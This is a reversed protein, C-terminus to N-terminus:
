ATFTFAPRAGTVKSLVKALLFGDIPLGTLPSTGNYAGNGNVDYGILDTKVNSVKEVLGFHGTADQAAALASIQRASIASASGNLGATIGTGGHGVFLGQADGNEDFVGLPRIGDNPKGFFGSNRVASISGGKGGRGQAASGGNGAQLLNIVSNIGKSQTFGKVGGGAGGSGGSASAKGGDGAVFVGALGDTLLPVDTTLGALAGGNGGATIGDGGIGALALISSSHSTFASALYLSTLNGGKGGTAKTTGSTTGGNGGAGASIILQGGFTTVDNFDEVAINSTTVDGGKGGNGSGGKGGAGASILASTLHTHTIHSGDAFLANQVYVGGVSGGAGGLTSGDGGAGGLILLAPADALSDEDHHTIGTLSGLGGLQVDGGKGGGGATGKGGKGAIIDLAISNLVISGNDLKQDLISTIHTTKVSGAAGGTTGDGGSGTTFTLLETTDFGGSMGFDSNPADLDLRISSLDGGMGGLGGTAAGGNGATFTVAFTHDVDENERELTQTHTLNAISGGAGGKAKPGTTSGGDGATALISGDHTVSKVGSISGGAGGAGGNGDGADGANLVLNGAGLEINLGSLSGGAGGKATAALIGTPTGGSGATIVLHAEINLKPLINQTGILFTGANTVSGGAGAAGTTTDGGNGATIVAESSEINLNQTSGGNGGKGTTGNGGKGLLIDITKGIFPLSYSTFTSLNSSYLFHSLSGGLAAYDVQGGSGYSPLFNKVLLTTTLTTPADYLPDSPLPIAAAPHAPFVDLRSSTPSTFLLAISDETSADSDHVFHGVIPKGLSSRLNLPAGASTLAAGAIDFFNTSRGTTSLALLRTGDQDVDLDSIGGVINIGTNSVVFPEGTNPGPQILTYIGGDARALILTDSAAGKAAVLDSATGLITNNTKQDKLSFTQTAFDYAGTIDHIISKKVGNQTTLELAAIALSSNGSFNGVAIKLPSFGVSGITANIAKSSNYFSGHGDNYYIVIANVDKYSVVIDLKGDGNFDGKDVDTPSHGVGEIITVPQFANNIYQVVPTLNPNAPTRGSLIMQGTASDVILVDDIAEGTVIGTTPDKVPDGTFDGTIFLGSAPQNSAFNANVLSGGSGGSVGDGGDGTSLTYQTSDSQLNLNQTTGGAGAAGLTSNGGKGGAIIVKGSADRELVSLISGGAGGKKGDGGDGALLHYVISTPTANDGPFASQILINEINGGAIGKATAPASANHGSGSFVQTLSAKTLTINKISAGPTTKSITPDITFSLQPTTTLPNIGVGVPIVVKGAALLKSEVRFVGDGAYIGGDGIVGGVSDSINLNSISGGTLIEGVSGKSNSLPHTVLGLLNNPLLLAGDEGNSPEHDTDSLRGAKTLNGIIGNTVDGWIELSTDPGFSIASVHGTNFWVIAQGSLVKVLTVNTDGISTEGNSANGAGGLLNAGQVLLAPAIRSELPEISPATHRPRTIPKM